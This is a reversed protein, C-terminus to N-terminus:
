CSGFRFSAWCEFEANWHFGLQVLRKQDTVSVADRAVDIGAVMFIDHECHTPAHQDAGGYKMLITLAEILDKM